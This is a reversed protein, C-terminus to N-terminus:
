VGAMSIVVKVVTVIISIFLIVVILGVIIYQSPKGHQFDHEYNKSKQVGLLASLVSKTVQWLSPTKNETTKKDMTVDEQAFIASFLRRNYLIQNHAGLRSIIAGIHKYTYLVM